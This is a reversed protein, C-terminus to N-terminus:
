PQDVCDVSLLPLGLDRILALLGHLAAQDIITGTLTTIAPGNNGRLVTVTLGEFLASWGESLRGEVQIQYTAPRDLGLRQHFNKM